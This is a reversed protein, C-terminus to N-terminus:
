FPIELLTIMIDDKDDKQERSFGAVMFTFFPFVLVEQEGPWFSYENEIPRGDKGKKVKRGICDIHTCPTNETTLYLRALM